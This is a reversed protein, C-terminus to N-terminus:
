LLIITKIHSFQNAERQRQYKKRNRNAEFLHNVGKINFHRSQNQLAIFAIFRHKNLSQLPKATNIQWLTHTLVFDKTFSSDFPLFSYASGHM